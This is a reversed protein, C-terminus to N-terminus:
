IYDRSASDQLTDQEHLLRRCQRHHIERHGGGTPLGDRAFDKYLDMRLDDPEKEEEQEEESNEDEQSQSEREKKKRLRKRYAAVGGAAAGAVAGGVAVAVAIPILFKMTGSEESAENDEEHIPPDENEAEDENEAKDDKGEYDDIDITMFVKFAFDSTSPMGVGTEKSDGTRGGVTLIVTHNTKQRCGRELEKVSASLSVGPLGSKVLQKAKAEKRSSYEDGELGMTLSIMDWGVGETESLSTITFSANIVDSITARGRLYLTGDKFHEEVIDSVGSVNFSARCTGHNNPANTLSITETRPNFNYGVTLTQQYGDAVASIPMLLALATLFTLLKHKTNM